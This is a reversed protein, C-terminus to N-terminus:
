AFVSTTHLVRGHLQHQQLSQTKMVAHRAAKTQQIHLEKHSKLVYNCELVLCFTILAM